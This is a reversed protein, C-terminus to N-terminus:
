RTRTAAGKVTTAVRNAFARTEFALIVLIGGFVISYIGILWLVTLAGAGPRAIALVGFAVSALGALGLWFEGEIEKRLNIATVIELLGIVIAWIAIYYLLGLATIGPSLFTLVGVVIGVLGALLLVWWNQYDRRRRRWTHSDKRGGIATVVKSIGDVLAFFGFTLTLTALSIGPQALVVIGFLIWVLGRLLTTWWYRSLVTSLM